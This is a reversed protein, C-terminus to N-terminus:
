SLANPRGETLVRVISDLDSTFSNGKSLDTTGYLRTACHAFGNGSGFVAWGSEHTHGSFVHVYTDPHAFAWERLTDGIAKCSFVPLHADDSPSGNYRCMEAFPPVHTVVNLLKTDARVTSLQEKLRAVQQEVFQQAYGIVDSRDHLLITYEDNLKVAKSADGYRYDYWGDVGVLQIGEGLTVAETLATMYTVNPIRLYKAMSQAGGITSYWFDHNGLVFYFQTKPCRESLQRLFFEFNRATGIDGGLICVDAQAEQFARMTKGYDEVGMHDLHLDAVWLSKITM